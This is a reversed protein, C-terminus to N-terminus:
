LVGALGRRSAPDCSVALHDRGGLISGTLATLVQGPGVELFVRAGAEYLSEVMEAFRVPGVAHDGRWQAIRAPVDPPPAATLNSFVPRAPPRLTLGNALDVLPARAGAVLPSHYACAVPLPRASLGNARAESLVRDVAEGPGSVVTQSPGNWNAIV